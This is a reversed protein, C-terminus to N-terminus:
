VSIDGNFRRRITEMINKDRYVLGSLEDRKSSKHLESWFDKPIKFEWFAYLIYVITWLVLDLLTFVLVLLRWVLIHLGLYKM